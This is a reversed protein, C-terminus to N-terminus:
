FLVSVAIQYVKIDLDVTTNVAPLAPNIVMPFSSNGWYNSYGGKIVVADTARYGFGFIVSKLGAKLVNNGKDKIFSYTGYGYLKESINYGLTGYYFM